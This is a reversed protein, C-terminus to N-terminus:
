TNFSRWLNSYTRYFGALEANQEHFFELLPGNEHRKKM